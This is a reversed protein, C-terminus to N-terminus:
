ILLVDETHCLLQCIALLIIITYVQHHRQITQGEDRHFQLVVICPLRYLIGHLLVLCVSVRFVRQQCWLATGYVKGHIIIIDLHTSPEAALTRPEQREILAHVTSCSVRDIRISNAGSIKPFLYQLFM